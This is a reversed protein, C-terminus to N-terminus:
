GLRVARPDDTTPIDVRKVVVPKSGDSEVVIADDFGAQAGVEIRASGDFTERDAAVTIAGIWGDEQISRELLCLGRLTHKNANRRQPRLASLKNHQVVREGM